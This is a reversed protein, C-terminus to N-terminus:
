KTPVVPDPMFLAVVSAFTTGIAVPDKTTVAQAGFALLGAFGAWSSPERLRKLFYNM